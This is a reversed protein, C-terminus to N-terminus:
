VLSGLKNGFTKKVAEFVKGCYDCALCKKSCHTVRNFWDAPFATNDIIENQFLNQYSPELLDLLNGPYVRNVYARLVLAPNFHMRTALKAFPFFPAYHNLDEPRIWSGQLVAKRNKPHGLYSQCALFQGPVNQTAMIQTEHAVMNDHFTQGSCFNLCGSNALLFLRKGNTRCWGHLEEIRSFDRNYERQLYFGDFFEKVYEMGQVTGIRMNVSARIELTPYETKLIRAVFPSTTTVADLGAIETVRDVISFITNALYQSTALGGYCNANFLLDLKIGMEKIAALDNELHERASWDIQGVQNGGASRGSPEGPWAFYVEEIHERFEGLMDVFSLEEDFRVPYGVAFKM